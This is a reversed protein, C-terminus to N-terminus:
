NVETLQCIGGASVQLAAFHTSRPPVVFYEVGAPVLLSATTATISVDGFELYIDQTAAVRVIEGSVLGAPLAQTATSPSTTIVATTSMPTLAQVPAGSVDRTMNPKAM